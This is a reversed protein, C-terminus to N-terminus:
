SLNKDKLKRINQQLIADLVQMEHQTPFKQLFLRKLTLYASAKRAKIDFGM